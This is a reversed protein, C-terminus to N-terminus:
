GGLGSLMSQQMRAIEGQAGEQARQLAANVAAATLDQVMERDGSELLSPEIEVSVVRLAGTVVAKVMGGGSAAEYRKAALEEQMEGMRGQLERAREMMQQLDNPNM